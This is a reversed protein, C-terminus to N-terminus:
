SMEDSFRIPGIERMSLLESLQEAVPDMFYTSNCLKVYYFLQGSPADVIGVVLAM